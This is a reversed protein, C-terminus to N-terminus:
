FVVTRGPGHIHPAVDSAPVAAYCGRWGVARDQGEWGIAGIGDSLCDGCMGSLRESEYGYVGFQGGGRGVGEVSGLGRRERNVWTLFAQLPARGANRSPYVVFHAMVKVAKSLGFPAVLKRDALHGSANVVSELAVGLSQTAADLSMQARDFREPAKASSVQPVLRGAGADAVTVAVFAKVCPAPLM